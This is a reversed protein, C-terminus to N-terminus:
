GCSEYTYTIFGLTVTTTHCGAANINELMSETLKKYQQETPVLFFIIKKSNEKVIYDIDNPMSAGISEVAEKPNERVLERFNKDYFKDFM